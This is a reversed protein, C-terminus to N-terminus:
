LSYYSSARMSTNLRPRGSDKRRADLAIRHAYSDGLSCMFECSARARRVSRQAGHLKLYTAGCNLEKSDIYM